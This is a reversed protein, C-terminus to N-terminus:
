NKKMVLVGFPSDSRAGPLPLIQPDSFGHTSAVQRLDDATVTEIMENNHQLFEDIQHSTMGASGMARRWASLQQARLGGRHFFTDAFVLYGGSALEGSLKQLLDDVAKMPESDLLDHLVLSGCIIHFPRHQRIEPSSFTPAADQCVRTRAITGLKREVEELSRTTLAVMRPSRDVAVFQDIPPPVALDIFPRNINQIWQALHLTLAGTGCGVELVRISDKTGRLIQAMEIEVLKACHAVLRDYEPIWCRIHLDYHDFYDETRENIDGWGSNWRGIANKTMWAQRLTARDWRQDFALARESVREYKREADRYAAEDNSQIRLFIDRERQVYGGVLDPKMLLLNRSYGEPGFVHPEVPEHPRLHHIKVPYHRRHECLRSHLKDLRVNDFMVEWDVLFIRETVTTKLPDADRWFWETTDSLDAIARTTLGDAEQLVSLCGQYYHAHVELRTPRHHIQEAVQGLWGAFCRLLPHDDRHHAVLTSTEKIVHHSASALVRAHAGDRLTPESLRGSHPPPISLPSFISHGELTTRFLDAEPRHGVLAVANTLWVHLPTTRDTLTGAENLAHLDTLLQESPTAEQSLSAIVDPSVGVLLAARMKELGTTIAAARLGLIDRHPLIGM